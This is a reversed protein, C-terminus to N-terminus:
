QAVRFQDVPTFQRRAVSQSRGCGTSHQDRSGLPSLCGTSCSPTISRTSLPVWTSWLWCRSRDRTWQPSFTLFCGFCVRSPPIISESDRNCRRFYDSRLFTNRYSGCSSEKWSRPCSLSNPSQGITRWTRQIWDTSRSGRHLLSLQRPHLYDDRTFRCKACYQSSHYSFTWLSRSSFHQHLISNVVRQRRVESWVGFSSSHCPTLLTFSCDTPMFVPPASGATDSRITEVKQEFFSLFDSVSFTSCNTTQKSPEELITSVSRWLKKPNSSNSGVKNELYENKKNQHRMSTGFLEFGLLGTARIKPEVIVVSWYDPVASSRGVIPTLGPHLHATDHLSTTCRLWGILYRSSAQATFISFSRRQCTGTTIRTEVSSGPPSLSGTKEM